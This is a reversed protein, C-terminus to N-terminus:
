SCCFISYLVAAAAALQSVVVVTIQQGEFAILTPTLLSSIFDAIRIGKTTLRELRKQSSRDPLSNVTTSKMKEKWCENQEVCPGFLNECM